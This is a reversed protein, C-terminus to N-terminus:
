LVCAIASKFNYSPFYRAHIPHWHRGGKLHGWNVPHGVRGLFAWKLIPEAGCGVEIKKKGSQGIKKPSGGMWDEEERQHM